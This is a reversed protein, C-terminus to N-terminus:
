VGVVVPLKGSPMLQGLVADVVAHLSPEADGLTCLVADASLMEADYPNRLALLISREAQDLLQQALELEGALLHANRTAVILVDSNQALQQAQARAHNDLASVRLTLTQTDPLAHRFQECLGTQGGAEVVNSDLYSAFEIVGVRQNSQLPIIADNKLMVLAQRSAQAVLDLHADSRIVSLDGVEAPFQAKLQAIRRNADAIITDPVRGSQAAALMAEYAAEQMSRTHSFLIVDVGALMALVASEGAGYHDAIARMELCDTTVVGDFGLEGRLLTEIVVPSLTAPLEADLQTFLTHTTMVTALGADITARYPMLDNAIVHSVSADVRALALHTDIATDGLGPFHKACAAVGGEQFGRVAAAAFHSVTEKDKGFSRVGVTPNAKNYSIDVAPAFTWNIGLAAMERGLVQSVQETLQLDDTAALAMAGPSQTFGERLRAVAGGEQDIGILLPYKAAVHLQECLSAVQQPTDVNRAFLIVGGIRGEALWELIYEPAKLGHFGAMLMQGVQEALQM